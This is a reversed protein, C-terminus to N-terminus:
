FVGGLVTLPYVLLFVDVFFEQQVYVLQLLISHHDPGVHHVLLPQEGVEYLAAAAGLVRFEPFLQIHEYLVDGGQYVMNVEGKFPKLIQLIRHQSDDIQVLILDHLDKGHDCQEYHRCGEHCTEISHIHGQRKVLVTPGPEPYKKQHYDQCKREPINESFLFHQLDILKVINAREKGLACKKHAVSLM